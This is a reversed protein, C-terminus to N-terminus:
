PEEIETINGKTPTPLPTNTITPTLSPTPTLTETPLPSDQALLRPGRNQLGSIGCITVVSIALVILFLQKM